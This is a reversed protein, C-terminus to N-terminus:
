RKENVEFSERQEVPVLNKERDTVQFGKWQEASVLRMEHGDTLEGVRNSLAVYQNPEIHWM